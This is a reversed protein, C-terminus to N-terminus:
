TLFRLSVRSITRTGRVFPQVRRAHCRSSFLLILRTRASYRTVATVTVLKLLVVVGKKERQSRVHNSIQQECRQSGFDALMIILDLRAARSPLKHCLVRTSFRTATQSTMRSEFSDVLSLEIMVEAKRSRQISVDRLNYRDSRVCPFVSRVGVSRFVFLFFGGSCSLLSLDVHRM